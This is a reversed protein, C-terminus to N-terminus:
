WGVYQQKFANLIMMAQSIDSGANQAFGSQVKTLDGIDAAILAGSGRQKIFAVTAWICAQKVSPPLNTITATTGHNYTLPATLPVIAGGPVYTSAVVCPEDTPLDYINMLSGPYIGTVATPSVSSAGAAVSAALTTNAFGAVYQYQVDYEVRRQIGYSGFGGFGAHGTTNFSIGAGTAVEFETPYITIGSGPTISAGSTSALGGPLPSYVFSRVETIPWYKTAVLLSNRYSGWVRANEVELTSALTGWAGFLYNDCWSSARGITETLATQNAQATGAILNM